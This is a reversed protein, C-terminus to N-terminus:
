LYIGCMVHMPQQRCKMCTGHMPDPMFCAHKMSIRGYEMCPTYEMCLVPINWAHYLCMGHTTCTYEHMTCAYQIHPVPTNRIHYLHIGHVTSVHVYWTRYLYEWTCYLYMGLM